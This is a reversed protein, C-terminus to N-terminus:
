SAKPRVKYYTRDPMKLIDAATRSDVGQLQMTMRLCWEASSARKDILEQALDVVAPDQVAVVEPKLSSRRGAWPICRPSIGKSLMATRIEWPQCKRKGESTRAYCRWTFPWYDALIIELSKRTDGHNPCFGNWKGISSSSTLQLVPMIHQEVCERATGAGCEPDM